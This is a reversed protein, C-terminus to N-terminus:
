ACNLFLMQRPPSELTTLSLQHSARRPSAPSRSPRHGAAAPCVNCPRDLSSSNGYKLNAVGIVALVSGATLGGHQAARLLAASKIPVILQLVVGAVTLLCGLLLLRADVLRWIFNCADWFTAPPKIDAPPLATVGGTCINDADATIETATPSGPSANCLTERCVHWRQACITATVTAAVGAVATSSCVASAPIHLPLRNTWSGSCILRTAPALMLRRWPVLRGRGFMM